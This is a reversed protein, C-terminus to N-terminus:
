AYRFATFFSYRGNGISGTKRKCCTNNNGRSYFIEYFNHMHMGGDSNDATIKTGMKIEPTTMWDPLIDIEDM